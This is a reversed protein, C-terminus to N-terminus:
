PPPRGIRPARPPAAMLKLLNDLNRQADGYDPRIRLAESYHHVADELRGEGYLVVGLNNHAEAHGPDIRLAEMYHRKAEQLLGNRTLALAWFAHADAYRPDIRLAESFHAIAEQFRAQENLALGLHAHAQAYDPRLRIAETLQQIAEAHKGQSFLAFGLNSRGIANDPSVEVAHAFLTMSNRWLSAQSWALGILISLVAGAGVSLVVRGHKVGQLAHAFGWAVTVAVGILPVYTFRDAMAPWADWDPFALAPTLAALYWFWGVAVYPRRRLLWVAAISIAAALLASGVATWAPFADLSPYAAALSGPWLINGLGAAYFLPIRTLPIGQPLAHM